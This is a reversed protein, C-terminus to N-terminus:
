AAVKKSSNQLNSKLTEHYLALLMISEEYEERSIRGSTLDEHLLSLQLYFM